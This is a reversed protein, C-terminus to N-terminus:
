SNQKQFNLEDFANLVIKRQLELDSSTKEAINVSTNLINWIKEGIMTVVINYKENYLINDGIEFIPDDLQWNVHKLIAESFDNFARGKLATQNVSSNKIFIYKGLRRYEIQCGYLFPKITSYENAQAILKFTKRSEIHQKLKEIM